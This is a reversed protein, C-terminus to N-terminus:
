YSFCPSYRIVKSIALTKLITIKDQVSLNRTRWIKLFNGIKKILKIFNEESEIKQNYSFHIGLIKVSDKTLDKCGMGCLEVSVGKLIGTGAIECKSKM